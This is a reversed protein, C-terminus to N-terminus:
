RQSQLCLLQVTVMCPGCLRYLLLRCYPSHGLRLECAVGEVINDSEKVFVGTAIARGHRMGSLVGAGM